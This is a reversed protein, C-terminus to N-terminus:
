WHGMLCGPPVHGMGVNLAVRGATEAGSAPDNASVSPIPVDRQLHLCREYNDYEAKKSASINLALPKANGALRGLDGACALRQETTLHFTVPDNCGLRGQLGPLLGKSGTGAQLGSDPKPPAEPAAITPLDPSPPLTQRRRSPAALERRPSARRPPEPRPNPELAPFLRLELARREPPPQLVKLGVVMGTLALVHALLSLGVAWATRRQKRSAM